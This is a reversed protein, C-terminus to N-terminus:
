ASGRWTVSQWILRDGEGPDFGISPVLSHHHSRLGPSQEKENSCVTKWLHSSLGDTNIPRATNRALLEVSVGLNQISQCLQPVSRSPGGSDQDVSQVVQFIKM